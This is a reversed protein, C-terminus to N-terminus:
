AKSCLHSWHLKSPNNIGNANVIDFSKYSLLYPQRIDQYHWRTRERNAPFCEGYPDHIQYYLNDDDYGTVVVIHGGHTLKNSWIVPNGQKLCTKIENHTTAVDFDSKVGYLALLKVLNAHVYRSGFRTRVVNDLEKPTVRVGTLYQIVMACCTVNCTQYKDLRGDRDWDGVADRQSIYPFGELFFKNSDVRDRYLQGFKSKVEKNIAADLYKVAEIQHPEGKYYEFADGLSILGSM